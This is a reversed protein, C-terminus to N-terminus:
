NCFKRLCNVYSLIDERTVGKFSKSHRFHASLWILTKIKGEKTSEKINFQTEENIIYDSILSANDSNISILDLLIKKIYPRQLRVISEAKQSLAATDELRQM